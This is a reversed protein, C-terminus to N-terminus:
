LNTRFFYVTLESRPVFDRRAARLQRPGSREVPGDWCFSAVDHEEHKVLLEFDGIPPKWTNATTLVYKVWRPIVRGHKGALAADRFARSACSADLGILANSEGAVPRYEHRIRVVKGAPFRQTWHKVIRVKWRPFWPEDDAPKDVIGENRLAGLTAAPLRELDASVDFQEGPAPRVSGFSKIDIRLSALRKTVDREGVLARVETSVAIEKEEVWARFDDFAASWDGYYSYAFEPVPFAVETTVDERSENLFEYEVGVRDVRIVLREKRMTIRKESRLQIGGAGVEAAGDNASAAGPGLVLFTTLLLLSRAISEVFPAYM